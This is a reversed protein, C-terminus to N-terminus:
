FKNLQEQYKMVQPMYVKSWEAETYKGDTRNQQIQKLKERMGDPTEGGGEGGAFEAEKLIEGMKMFLKITKAAGIAEEAAKIDEDGLGAEKGFIRMARRSLEQQEAFHDGLEVQLAKIEQASRADFAAKEQAEAEKVFSELKSSFNAASKQPIGEEYFWKAAVVSLEKAEESFPLKYGEPTEPVGMKARFSKMGEADNEDKPMVVTRGARDLGIMKEASYHGKMAELPSPYNKNQVYSRFDNDTEKALVEGYWPSNVAGGGSGNGGQSGQSQDQTLISSATDTM